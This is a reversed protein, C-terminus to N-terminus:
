KQDNIQARKHRETKPNIERQNSTKMVIKNRRLLPFMPKLSFFNSDLTELLLWFCCETNLRLSYLLPYKSQLFTRHFMLSFNHNKKEFKDKSCQRPKGFNDITGTAPGRSM